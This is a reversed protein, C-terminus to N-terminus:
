WLVRRPVVVGDTDATVVSRLERAGARLLLSSMRRGDPTLCLARVRGGRQTGSTYPSGAVTSAALRSSTLEFTSILGDAVLQSLDHRAELPAQMMMPAPAACFVPALEYDLVKHVVCEHVFVALVWDHVAAAAGGGAADGDVDTSQPVIGALDDPTAVHV